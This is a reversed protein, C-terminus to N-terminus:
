GIKALDILEKDLVMVHDFNFVALEWDGGPLLEVAGNVGHKKFLMQAKSFGAIKVIDGVRGRGYILSRHQMPLAEYDKYGLEQAIANLSGVMKETPVTSNDYFNNTNIRVTYVTPKDGGYKRAYIEAQQKNTIFYIGPGLIRYGEGSGSHKLDFAGNFGRGGHYATVVDPLTPRTSQEFLDHLLM